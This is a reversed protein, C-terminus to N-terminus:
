RDNKLFLDCLCSLLPVYYFSSVPIHYSVRIIDASSVTFYILVWAGVFPMNYSRCTITICCLLSTIKYSYCYLTPQSIQHRYSIVVSSVM